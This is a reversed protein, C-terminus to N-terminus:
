LADRGDIIIKGILKRLLMQHINGAAELKRMEDGGGVSEGNVLINPVTRRGTVKGLYDQLEVGHPHKDLEVVYPAPVSFEDSYNELFTYM